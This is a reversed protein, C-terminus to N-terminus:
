LRPARRGPIATPDAADLSLALALQGTPDTVGAQLARAQRAPIRRLEDLVLLRNSRDLAAWHDFAFDLRWMTDDPGFPAVAYSRAFALNGERGLGAPSRADLYSLRLWATANAPAQHLGALTESRAELRGSEGLGPTRVLADARAEHTPALSLARSYGTDPLALAIAAGATALLGAVAILVGATGGDFRIRAM